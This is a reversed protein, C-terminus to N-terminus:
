LNADSSCVLNCLTRVLGGIARGTFIAPTNGMSAVQMISGINFIVGTLILTIKRGYKDGLPAAALSGFFCGAQLLSVINASFADLTSQSAGKLGFDSIKIILRQPEDRTPSPSV